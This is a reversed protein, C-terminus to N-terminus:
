FPVEEQEAFLARTRKPLEVYRLSNDPVAARNYKRDDVIEKGALDGSALYISAHWM